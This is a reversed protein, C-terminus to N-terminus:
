YIIIVILKLGKTIFLGECFFLVYLIFVFNNSCFNKVVKRNETINRSLPRPLLNRQIAPRLCRTFLIYYSWEDRHVHAFTSHEPDTVHDSASFHMKLNTACVQAGSKSANLLSSITLSSRRIAVMPKLFFM